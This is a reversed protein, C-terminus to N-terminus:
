IKEYTKARNLHKRFAGKAPREQKITANGCIPCRLTCFHWTFQCEACTYFELYRMKSLYKESRM